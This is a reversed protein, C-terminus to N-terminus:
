PKIDEFTLSALRAMRRHLSALKTDRMNIARSYASGPTKHVDIARIFRRVSGVEGVLANGDDDLEAEVEEVGRTLAYVTVWVRM